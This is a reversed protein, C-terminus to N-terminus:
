ISGEAPPVATSKRELIVLKEDFEDVSQAIASVAGEQLALRDSQAEDHRELKRLRENIAALSNRLEGTADAADREFGVGVGAATVTAPLSGRMAFMLLTVVMLIVAFTALIRELSFLLDSGMAIEPLPTPTSAAFSVVVAAGVGGLGITPGFLKPAYSTKFDGGSM